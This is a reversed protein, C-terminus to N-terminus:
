RVAKSYCEGPASRPQNQHSRSCAADRHILETMQPDNGKENRSDAVASGRPGRIARLDDVLKVASHIGAALGLRLQKSMLWSPAPLHYRQALIPYVGVGFFVVFVALGALWHRRELLPPAPVSLSSPHPILSSVPLTDAAPQLTKNM